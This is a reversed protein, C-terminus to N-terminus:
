RCRSETFDREIDGTDALVVFGEAPDRAVFVGYDPRGSARALRDAATWVEDLRAVRATSRGALRERAERRLRVIHIHLQDQTRLQPANVV